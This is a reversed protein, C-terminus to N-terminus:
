IYLIYVSVFGRNEKIKSAWTFPLKCKSTEFDCVVSSLETRQRNQSSNTLSSGKWSLSQTDKPGELLFQPPRNAWPPHRVNVWPKDAAPLQTYLRAVLNPGGKWPQCFLWFSLFGAGGQVGLAVDGHLGPLPPLLHVEDDDAYMKSFVKLFLLKLHNVLVM